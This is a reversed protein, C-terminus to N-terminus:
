RWTEQELYDLCHPDQELLAYYDRLLGDWHARSSACERDRVDQNLVAGSKMQAFCISCLRCAWCQLCDASLALYDDYLRAVGVRNVGTRVDGIPYANDLKECVHYDGESSVFLRRASPLCNGNPEMSDGLPQKSRHYFRGFDTGYLDNAFGFPAGTRAVDALFGRQLEGNERRLQALSEATPHLDANCTASNVYSFACHHGRTLPHSDFFDVVDALAFPAACVVSFIVNKDYAAPDAQQLRELGALIRDFAGVGRVDKRHRDTVARPGDLSVTVLFGHSMLFRAVSESVLTGNTTLSWSVRRQPHDRAVDSVLREIMEFRLLPEGGYFSLSVDEGARSMFEDVALRATESTMERPGHTRQEPYDGGYVCYGCRLNCGDTVNLILQERPTVDLLEAVDGGAYGIRSPRHNSFLGKGKAVAVGAAAREIETKDFQPLSAVLRDLSLAEPHDIIESTVEDVQFTRNSNVDYIYFHRDTRFKHVFPEARAEDADPAGRGAPELLGPSPVVALRQM